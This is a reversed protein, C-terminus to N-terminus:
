EARLKIMLTLNGELGAQRQSKAVPVDSKFFAEQSTQAFYGIM